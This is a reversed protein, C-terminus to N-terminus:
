LQDSETPQDLNRGLQIARYFAFPALVLIVCAGLVMLGFWQRAEYNATHMSQASHEHSSLLTWLLLVAGGALSFVGVVIYAILKRRQYARHFARARAEIDETM